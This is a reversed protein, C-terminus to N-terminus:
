FLPHKWARWGIGLVPSSIPLDKMMKTQVHFASCGASLSNKGTFGRFGHLREGATSPHIGQLAMTWWRRPLHTELLSLLIWWSYRLSLRLHPLVLPTYFAIWSPASHELLFPATHGLHPTTVAILFMGLNAVYLDANKLLAGPLEKHM